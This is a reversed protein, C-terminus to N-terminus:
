ANTLGNKINDFIEDTKNKILDIINGSEAAINKTYDNDKLAACNILVNLYAGKSATQLLLVAVGVDSLSNKNGKISVNELYEVIGGALKIVKFPVEIAGITADDIAKNRLIKQEDTEKPLKFADMVKNFAENDAEALDLFQTKYDILKSKYEIMASEYELYKKKGITLNCVMEGLASSLCGCLASVNGGGPTPASSSLQQLYDNLSIEINM